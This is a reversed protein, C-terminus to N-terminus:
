NNELQGRAPLPARRKHNPTPLDDSITTTNGALRALASNTFSTKFPTKALQLQKKPYTSLGVCQM